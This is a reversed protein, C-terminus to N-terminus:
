RFSLAHRQPERRHFTEAVRFDRLGEFGALLGHLAQDVTASGAERFPQLIKLHLGPRRGSREGRVLFRHHLSVVVFPAAIRLGFEVLGQRRQVVCLKGFLLGRGQTRPDVGLGRQCTPEIAEVCDVAPQASVCGGLNRSVEEGAQLPTDLFVSASRM